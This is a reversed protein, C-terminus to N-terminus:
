DGMRAPGRVRGLHDAVVAPVFARIDAGFGAIERVLSSSVYAHEPSTVLFITDLEPALRRNVHAMQRETEFDAFARLGRVIVSAAHHRALDVTLGNFAVVEVPAFPRGAVSIRGTIESDVAARLLAVRTAADLLPTKRTNTLVGVVLRDFITAARRIVDLHGFTVPDFSGPCVATVM